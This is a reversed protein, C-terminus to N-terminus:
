LQGRVRLAMSLQAALARADDQRPVIPTMQVNQNYTTSQAGAGALAPSAFGPTMAAAAAQVFALGASRGMETAASVVEGALEEIGDAMGGAFEPLAVRIGPLGPPPRGGGGISPLDVSIAFRIPATIINKVTDWISRAASAIAGAAARLGSAIANGLAQGASRAAGVLGRVASVAANAITRAAGIVAGRVANFGSRVGGMLASGASRFAGLTARVAALAAQAITRAAGVVAGRLANFGAKVANFLAMGVARFAAIRAKFAGLVSTGVAKAVNVLAGIVARAGTKIGNWAKEAAGKAQDFAAPLLKVAGILNTILGIPVAFPVIWSRISAPIRNFLELLSSVPGLLHNVGSLMFEMSPALAQFLQLAIVVLNGLVSALTKVLPLTDEFFQKIREQGEASNVWDTIADVADTLWRVLEQGAPAAAKIFGLFLKSIAGILKLWDSLHSVLNSVGGVLGGMNVEALDRMWRSVAQLGIALFPLSTTAINRIVRLLSILISVLPPFVQRAAGAMEVFFQRWAPSAFESLLARLVGGIVQGFDTFAPKLSKLMPVLAQLGQNLGRFVADAAPGLTAKFVDSLRGATERLAHAATGAEESQAKFRAIAGVVLGVAPLMAGAFAATAGVAIAALGAVALSLSAILASLAVVVAGIAAFLVVGLVAAASAAAKGLVGVSAGSTGAHTSLGSLSGGADIAGKAFLNGIADWGRRLLGFFSRFNRMGRDTDVNVEVEYSRTALLALRAELAKIEAKAKGTAVEIEPTAEVRDLDKLLAKAERLKRRLEDTDLDAVAEAKIRDFAEVDTALDALEREADSGDGLVRILVDNLAV